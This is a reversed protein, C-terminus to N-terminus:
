AVDPEGCRDLIWRRAARHLDTTARWDTGHPVIPDGFEIEIARPRVFKHGARLMSRTGRIAVPVVPLSATAAGNGRGILATPEARVLDAPTVVRRLSAVAGRVLRALRATEASTVLLSARCSTLVRAQRRLHDGIQSVRAPPYLPVPVGGAMLIGAFVVFYELGTPLMLGVREGSSLGEEVLATAVRRAQTWLEGYTLEGETASDGLLRVHLRDSHEEVHWGLVEVLTAADAPLRAPSPAIAPRSLTPAPGAPRSGVDCNLVHVLDRPTDVASLRSTPLSVGLAQEVLSLVEVLELSGLELDHEFSSDLRVTAARGASRVDSVVQRVCDLVVLEVSPEAVPSTM